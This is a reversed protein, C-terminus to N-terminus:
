LFNTHELSQILGCCLLLENVNFCLWTSSGMLLRYLVPAKIFSDPLLPWYKLPNGQFPIVLMGLFHPSVRIDEKVKPTDLATSNSWWLGGYQYNSFNGCCKRYNVLTVAGHRQTSTVSTCSRTSAHSVDPFSNEMYTGHKIWWDSIAPSAVTNYSCVTKIWCCCNGQPWAPPKRTENVVGWARQIYIQTNRLGTRVLYLWLIKAKNNSLKLSCRESLGREREFGRQVQHPKKQWM